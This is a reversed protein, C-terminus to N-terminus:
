SPEGLEKLAVLERPSLPYIPGYLPRKGPWLEIALDSDRNPAIKKANTDSFVDTYSALCAHLKSALGSSETRLLLNV